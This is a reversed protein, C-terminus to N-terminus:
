NGNVVREIGDSHIHQVLHKGRMAKDLLDDGELLWSPELCQQLELGLLTCHLCPVCQLHTRANHLPSYIHLTWLIRILWGYAIRWPSMDLRSNPLWQPWLKWSVRQVTIMLMKWHWQDLRNNPQWEPGFCKHHSSCRLCGTRWTLMQNQFDSLECM